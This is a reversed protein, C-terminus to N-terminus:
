LIPTMDNPLALRELRRALRLAANGLWAAAYVIARCTASVRLPLVVLLAALLAYLWVRAPIDRM